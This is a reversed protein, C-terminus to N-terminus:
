NRSTRSFNNKSGNKPTTYNSPMRELAERLEDGWRYSDQVNSFRDVIVNYPVKNIKWGLMTENSFGDQLLIHSGPLGEITTLWSASDAAHLCITIIDIRKARRDKADFTDFYEHLGFHKALPTLMQLSDVSTQSYDAWCYIYCANQRSESMDYNITDVSTHFKTLPSLRKNKKLRISPANFQQEIAKLLWSPKAEETLKGLCQRLHVSDEVLYMKDRIIISAVVSNSYEKCISDLYQIKSISTVTDFKNCASQINNNLIDDEGFTIQGEKDIDINIQSGASAFFNASQGHGSVIFLEDLDSTSGKYAFKGHLVPLVECVLGDHKDIFLRIDDDMFASDQSITGSINYEGSKNDSGFKGSCGAVLLLPIIIFFISRLSKM